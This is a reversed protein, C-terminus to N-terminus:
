MEFCYIAKVYGKQGRIRTLSEIFFNGIQARKIAVRSTTELYSIMNVGGESNNKDGNIYLGTPRIRTSYFHLYINLFNFM